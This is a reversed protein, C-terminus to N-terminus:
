AIRLGLLYYGGIKLWGNPSSSGSPSCEEELAGTDHVIRGNGIQETGTIGTALESRRTALLRM